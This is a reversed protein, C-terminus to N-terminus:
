FRDKNIYPNIADNAVGVVEGKEGGCDEGDEVWDDREVICANVATTKMLALFCQCKNTNNSIATILSYKKMKRSHYKDLLTVLKFLSLIQKRSTERIM